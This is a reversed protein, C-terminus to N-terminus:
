DWDNDGNWHQRHWYWRAGVHPRPAVYVPRPEAYVPGAYNREVPVVCGALTAGALMLAAILMPKWSRRNMSVEMPVEM